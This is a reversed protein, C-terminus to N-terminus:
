TARRISPGDVRGPPRRVRVGHDANLIETHADLDFVDVLGETGEDCEVIDREVERAAGQGRQETGRAAALGRQQPDDGPQLAGVATPDDEGTLVGGVGMHTLAPHTEDELVIRQKPVHRHELVDGEPQPDLGSALPGALRLDARPHHAQEFQDLERREGVAKRTLQGAALTLADREGAGQRDFRLNQQEVLREAREVGLYALFQAAPQAPQVILQM